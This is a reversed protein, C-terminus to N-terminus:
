MDNIEIDANSANQLKEIEEESMTANPFTGDKWLIRMRYDDPNEM